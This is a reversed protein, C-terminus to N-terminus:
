KRASVERVRDSIIAVKHEWTETRMAANRARREQPSDMSIARAVAEEFEEYTNATDCLGDYCAVEPLATSVVPLGASLYERLKIPNMKLTLNNLKHPLIGVSFRRCYAPLESHPKRGLLRINAYDKFKSVDTCVKGLLAITWEPHRKALYVVLDQDMWDEVLGYFGLVPTTCDALDAPVALSDDLAASFQEYAVGHSALHTESNLKKKENALARSTAFVIDARECLHEELSIMQGSDVHTFDAWSDTCYFVTFNQGLIDVYEGATPPWAWLQFQNMKLKRRLMRVSTKLIWRNLSIAARNHPLPLVIPTYVWLNPEVQKPGQAFSLLKSFIKKIDSSQTLNPSRTAISNLWLVQNYRALTRMVHTVSTPDGNWDKAFCVINQGSLIRDAPSDAPATYECEEREITQM